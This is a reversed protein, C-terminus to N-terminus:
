WVPSMDMAARRAAEAVEAREEAELQLLVSDLATLYAPVLHDAVMSRCLKLRCYVSHDAVGMLVYPQQLSAAAAAAAGAPTAAAAPAAAAASAASLDGGLSMPRSDSPADEEAPLLPTHADSGSSLMGLSFLADPEPLPEEHTMGISSKPFFHLVRGAPYLRRAAGSCPDGGSSRRGPRPQSTGPGGVSASLPPVGSSSAGAAYGGVAGAATAAASPRDRTARGGETNIRGLPLTASRGLRSSSGADEFSALRNSKISQAGAAATSLPNVDVVTGFPPECALLVARGTGSSLAGGFSSPGSGVAERLVEEAASIIDDDRAAQDPSPQNTVAAVVATIGAQLQQEAAEASVATSSSGLGGAGSLAAAVAAEEDEDGDDEDHDVQVHLHMEGDDLVADEAAHPPNPVHCSSWCSWCLVKYCAHAPQVCRAKHMSAHLM